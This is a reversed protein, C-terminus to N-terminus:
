FCTLSTLGNHLDQLMEGTIRIQDELTAPMKGSALCRAVVFTYASGYLGTSSLFDNIIRFSSTASQGSSYCATYAKLFFRERGGM